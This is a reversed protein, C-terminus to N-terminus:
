DFCRLMILKTFLGLSALLVGITMLLNYDTDLFIYDLGMGLIVTLYSFPQVLAPSCSRVSLARTYQTLFSFLVMSIVCFLLWCGEKFTLSEIYTVSEQHSSATFMFVTYNLLGQFLYSHQLTILEDCKSSLGHLLLISFSSTFAALLVLCYYPLQQVSIENTGFLFSPQIILVIGCFSM